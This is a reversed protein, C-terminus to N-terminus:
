EERAELRKIYDAKLTVEQRLKENEVELLDAAKSIQRWEDLTYVVINASEQVGLEMLMESLEMMTDRM